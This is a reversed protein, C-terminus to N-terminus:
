DDSGVECSEGCGSGIDLSESFLEGQRIVTDAYREFDQTEALRLIDEASRKERFFVRSKHDPDPNKSRNIHGHEAEMRKPFDFIFPDDQALTMLKRLSKKWCWVCNGYHEGPLNLDWPFQSMFSKVDEKRIGAKVLPYIINNKKATSSMRDIEDVRIGVATQYTGKDWGMQERLYSEMPEVKLRSTCNPHSKCFVGHKRIAAEFPEGNRAATEYTVVKATPGKGAGHIEAELWIVQHGMPRCFHQDVADVFRLTEDHECGTNAFLICIDHSNGYDHLCQYLM